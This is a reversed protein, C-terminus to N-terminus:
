DFLVTKNKGAQKARYLADDARTIFGDVSDNIHHITVGVSVTMQITKGSYILHSNEIKSRIKDAISFAQDHECRNLVVAFEEGGYRYVKDGTRIISKISQGMFYLVKDGAVHGYTDNLSKFNDADIMMLVVSLAKSQGAEIITELDDILGKRNTVQTLPDTISETIAKDLEHTLDNIKSQAKKLENSMESGLQSLGSVLETCREGDHQSAKTVYDDQLKAVHSIDSHTEVFSKVSRQAITLYNCNTCHDKGSGSEKKQIDKLAQDAQQAFIEDFYKKYNGPFPPIRLARMTAITQDHIETIKDFALDDSM